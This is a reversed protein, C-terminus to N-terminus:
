GYLYAFLEKVLIMPLPYPPPINETNKELPHHTFRNIIFFQMLGLVNMKKLVEDRDFCKNLILYYIHGNHQCEKPIAPRRVKESHELHEFIM